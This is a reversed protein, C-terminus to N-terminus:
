QPMYCRTAQALPMRHVGESHLVLLMQQIATHQPRARQRRSARHRMWADHLVTTCKVSHPFAIGAINAKTQWRLSVRAAPPAAASAAPDGLDAAAAFGAADSLAGGVASM